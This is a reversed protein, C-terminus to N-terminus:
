RAEGAKKATSGRVVLEPAMLHTRGLHANNEEEDPKLADLICEVALEGMRVMPQRITTLGPTSIASGPIDDFGIVSVDEPVRLNHEALSRIAGCASMDDIAFVATFSEGSDILKNILIRSDDFSSSSTSNSPLSQVLAPNLWLKVSEAFRRGGELRSQCNWLGLPGCVVAISRHGLKYLHRMAAYGGADNDVVVCHISSPEVDGGVVVTPLQSRIIVELFAADFPLLSSVTVLGEVRRELMMELYREAQAPESGADVIIPVYSTERLKRLIGQLILICRPDAFDIVLVGITQSKSSRLSRAFVNPRYGLREATQRIKHKTEPAVYRSLPADNLVISVTSPSFGSAKALDRLTVRRSTTRVDKKAKV